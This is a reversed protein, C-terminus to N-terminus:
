KLKLQEACYYLNAPARQNAPISTPRMASPTILVHPKLQEPKSPNEPGLYAHN